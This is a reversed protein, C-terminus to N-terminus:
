RQASGSLRAGCRAGGGPPGHRRHPDLEVQDPTSVCRPRPGRRAGRATAGPDAGDLGAGGRAAAAAVWAALAGMTDPRDVLLILATVGEVAMLPGVIWTIRRAHDQAATIRARAGVGTGPGPVAAAAGDLDGRGDGLHRDGVRGPSRRDHDLRRGEPRRVGALAPRRRRGRHRRRDYPRRPRTSAPPCRRLRERSPGIPSARRPTRRDPTSCRSRRVAPRAPWAGRRVVAGRGEVRRLRGHRAPEDRRHRGSINCLTAGQNMHRCHLRPWCSRCSPTPSSCSRWPMSASIASPASRLSVSPTSSSTSRVPTSAGGRCPTSARIRPQAPRPRRPPRRRGPRQAARTPAVGPDLRRWARRTGLRHRKRPRRHCRRRAGIRRRAPLLHHPDSMTSEQHPPPRQCRRTAPPRHSRQRAPAAPTTSPASSRAPRATDSSSTPPAGPPRHRRRPPGPRGHRHRRRGRRPQHGVRRRARAPHDFRTLPRRRDRRGRGRGPHLDRDLRRRRQSGGARHIRPRIRRPPPETARDGASRHWRGSGPGTPSRPVLPGDLEGGHPRRPRRLPATHRSPPSRRAPDQERRRADIDAPSFVAGADLSRAEDLTLLWLAESTPCNGPRRRTRRWRSAPPHPHHRLCTMGASRLHERAAMPARALMWLPLTATAAASRRTSTRHQRRGHRLADVIPSPDDAFRPRAIDSEFVGRHGHRTSGREALTRRPRCRRRDSPRSPGDALAAIPELDDLMRTAATRQRALHDDLTGTARLLAVPPALSSALAGMENVLALYSARLAGICEGVDADAALTTARLEDAVREARRVAGLQALGIRALTPAAALMRRPALGVDVDPTGGYSDTVLRTPLGLARMLDTLMSLNLYPRGAFTEVFPRHVPLDADLSAYFDLLDHAASEILSTMFTSPLEPLIEKHNAITFAEDRAPAATVPRVQVLWCTAGDDAWEIDWGGPGFERRVARSWRHWADNGPLWDSTPVSAPTPAPRPPVTPRARPRGPPPRRTRRSRQRSRGRLRGRQVRGRRRDPRHRAHGTRRHAHDPQAWRIGPGPRDVGRGRRARHRTRHPFPRRLERRHRGRLRVRVARRPPSRARQPVVVAGADAEPVVIVGAPVAIGAVAARDLM